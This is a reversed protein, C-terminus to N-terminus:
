FFSTVVIKKINKRDDGGGGGEKEDGGGEKEDGGGGGEKEDGGGEKEDGGGQKKEEKKEEKEVEKEVKVIDDEDDEGDEIEVKIGEEEDTDEEKIDEDSDEEKIDEDNDEKKEKKDNNDDDKLDPLIISDLDTLDLVKPIGKKKKKTSTEINKIEPVYENRKELLNSQLSTYITNRPILTTLNKYEERKKKMIMAKQLTYSNLLM